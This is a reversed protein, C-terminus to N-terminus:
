LIQAMSSVHDASRNARRLGSFVPEYAGIGRMHEAAGTRERIDVPALRVRRPQGLM